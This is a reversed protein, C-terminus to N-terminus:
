LNAYEIEESLPAIKHSEYYEPLYCAKILINLAERYAKCAKYSPCDSLKKYEGSEFEDKLIGIEIDFWTRLSDIAHDDVTM